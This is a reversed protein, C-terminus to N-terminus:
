NNFNFDFGTNFVIRDYEDSIQNFEKDMLVLKSDDTKLCYYDEFIVIYNTQLIGVGDSDFVFYETDVLDSSTSYDKLLIINGDKVDDVEYGGDFEVKYGYDDYWGASSGDLSMFSIHGDSLLKLNISYSSLSDMSGQIYEIESMEKGDARKVTVRCKLYGYNFLDGNEANTYVTEDELPEITMTYNEDKYYYKGSYTEDTLYVEERELSDEEQRETHIENGLFARLIFDFTEINYLNSINNDSIKNHEDYMREGINHDFYSLINNELSKRDNDKSIVFYDDDKKAIAFYYTKDNIEILHFYTVKDYECTIEEEGQENIYGFKMDKEVPIYVEDITNGKLTTIDQLMQSVQNKREENLMKLDILYYVIIILLFLVVLVQLLYHIIVNVIKNVRTQIVENEGYHIYIFQMIISSLIWLEGYIYYLNNNNEVLLINLLEMISIFIALVYSIIKVKTPRDRKIHIFNRIILVIPIVVFFVIDVYKIIEAVQMDIFFNPNSRLFVSQLAWVIPIIGFVSYWFSLKKNNRNQISSVVNSVGIVVYFIILIIDINSIFFNNISNNFVYSYGDPSLLANNFIYNASFYLICIAVIAVVNFVTVIYNVKKSNM